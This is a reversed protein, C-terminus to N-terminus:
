KYLGQHKNFIEDLKMQQKNSLYFKRLQDKISKVFKREWQSLEPDGSLIEVKGCDECKCNGKPKHEDM